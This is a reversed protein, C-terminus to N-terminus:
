AKDINRRDAVNNPHLFSCVVPLENLTVSLMMALPVSPPARAAQIKRPQNAPNTM